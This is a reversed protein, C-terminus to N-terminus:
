STGAAGCGNWSSASCGCRSCTSCSTSSGATCSCTRSPSGSRSSSSRRRRAAPRAAAHRRPRPVRAPVRRRQRRGAGQDGADASGPGFSYAFASTSPIARVCRDTQKSSLRAVDTGTPEPTTSARARRAYGDDSGNSAAGRAGCGGAAHVGDPRAHTRNRHSRGADRCVPREARRDGVRLGDDAVVGHGRQHPRDDPWLHRQGAADIAAPFRRDLYLSSCGARAPDARDGPVARLAVLSWM